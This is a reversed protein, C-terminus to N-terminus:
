LQKANQKSKSLKLFNSPAPLLQAIHILAKLQEM